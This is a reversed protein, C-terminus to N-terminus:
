EVLAGRPTGGGGTANNVSLTAFDRPEDGKAAKLDYFRAAKITVYSIMPVMRSNFVGHNVDISTIRGLYRLNSGLHFEVAAGNLWGQDATSGRLSSKYDGKGGHLARFLFELDYMTGKNWIEKVTWAGVSQGYLEISRTELNAVGNDVGTLTGDQNVYSMDELRNLLLEFAFGGTGPPVIPNVKDRGSMLLEPSMDTMTGYSMGISNPNYHFKFGYPKSKKGKYGAAGEEKGLYYATEASMQIVGKSNGFNNFAALGDKIQKPMLQKGSSDQLALSLTDSGANGFQANKILPINYGYEKRAFDAGKVVTSSSTSSTSSSQGAQVAYKTNTQSLWAKATTIKSQITTAEDSYKKFSKQANAFALDVRAMTAKKTANTPDASLAAFAAARLKSQKDLEAKAAKQKKQVNALDQPLTKLEAQTKKVQVADRLPDVVLCVEANKKAAAGATKSPTPRPAPVYSVM